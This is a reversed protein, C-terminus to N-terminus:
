RSVDAGDTGSGPPGSRREPVAHCAACEGAPEHDELEQHCTLCVSRSWSADATGSETHCGSGSCTLHVRDSPHHTAEAEVHCAACRADPDHHEQHCSACETGAASLSPRGEHCDACALESHQGHDFPLERQKADGVSFQLLRSVSRSGSISAEDHCGACDGGEGTRSPDHHCAQCETSSRITLRGHTEESVHCETCQLSTHEDHDFSPFREQGAAPAAWLGIVAVGTCLVVVPGTWRRWPEDTM